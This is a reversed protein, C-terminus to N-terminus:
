AYSDHEHGRELKFEVSFWEDNDLVSFGYKEVSELKEVFDDLNKTALDNIFMNMKYAVDINRKIPIIPLFGIKMLSYFVDDKINGHVPVDFTKSCNLRPTDGDISIYASDLQAEIKVIMKM